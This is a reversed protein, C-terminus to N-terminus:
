GIVWVTLKVNDPWPHLDVGTSSPDFQCQVDM